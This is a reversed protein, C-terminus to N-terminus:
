NSSPWSRESARLDSLGAFTVELDTASDPPDAIQIRLDTCGGRSISEVPIRVVIEFIKDGRLNCLSCRIPPVFKSERGVNRIKGTVVLTPSAGDFDRDVALDYFELGLVNVDLALSRTGDNEDELRFKARSFEHSPAELTEAVLARLEEDLSKGDTM